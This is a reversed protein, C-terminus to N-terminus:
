RLTACGMGDEATAGIDGSSRFVCLQSIGRYRTAKTQHSTLHRCVLDEGQQQDGNPRASRVALRCCIVNLTPVYSRAKSVRGRCTRRHIHPRGEFLKTMSVWFKDCCQAM